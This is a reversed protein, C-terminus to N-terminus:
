ILKPEEVEENSASNFLCYLVIFFVIGRERCFFSESLFLMIMTVAFALHLFDKHRLANRLNIFLMALLIIIGLVGLEAFTQLYQNHFNHEEYVEVMNHEKAKKSIYEQSADLGFGTLFFQREKLIELFVRIQYVRIAAGPFFSNHNFDKKNWAENISVNYVYKKEKTLDNNLTNDIFATEYEILFRERVKKVFLISFLLFASVFIITIAKTGSPIKSFFTYYCIIIIFDITIISKSSLLFILIALVLIATKEITNKTQIQIFYFIALSAFVSLYIVGSDNPVLNDYFFVSANSSYLYAFCARILFSLAVVVIGFSYVRIIRLLDKKNLKAVFFFTIPIFLFPLQKQLGSFSRDFNQSWTLSFIM